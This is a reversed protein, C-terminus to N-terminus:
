RASRTESKVLPDVTRLSEIPLTTESYSNGLQLSDQPQLTPGTPCPPVRCIGGCNWTACVSVFIIISQHLPGSSATVNVRYNGITNSTLGMISGGFGGAPMNVPNTGFTATLGSATKATLTFTLAGDVSIMYFTVAAGPSGAKFSASTGNSNFIFNTVYVRVTLSHSISGSTATITVSYIGLTSSRATL